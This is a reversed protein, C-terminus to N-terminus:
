FAYKIGKRVCLQYGHWASGHLRIKILWLSCWHFFLNSFTCEYVPRFILGSFLKFVAAVWFQICIFRGLVFLFHFCSVQLFFSWLVLLAPPHTPPWAIAFLLLFLSCEWSGHSLVGRVSAGLGGSTQSFFQESEKMGWGASFLVEFSINFEESSHINTSINFLVHSVTLKTTKQEM